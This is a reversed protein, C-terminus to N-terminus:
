TKLALIDTFKKAKVIRCEEALSELATAVYYDNLWSPKDPTINKLTNRSSSNQNETLCYNYENIGIEYGYEHKLAILM